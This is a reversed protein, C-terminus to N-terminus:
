DEATDEHAEGIVAPPAKRKFFGCRWLIIIILILLLIGAVVSGIIIWLYSRRTASSPYFQSKMASKGEPGFVFNDQSVSTVAVYSTVNVDGVGFLTSEWLRALFKFKVMQGRELTDIYCYFKVCGESGDACNLPPLDELVEREEAERRERGRTNDIVGLPNIHGESVCRSNEKKDDEISIHVLYLLYDDELRQPWWVVM